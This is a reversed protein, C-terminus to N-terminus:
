SKAISIGAVPMASHSAAIAITSRSGPLLRIVRPASLSYSVLSNTVANHLPFDGPVHRLNRRISSRRDVAAGGTMRVVADALINSFPHFLDESPHLRHSDEPLRSVDSRFFDGPMETEGCRRVIQDSNSVKPQTRFLSSVGTSFSPCTRFSPFSSAFQTFVGLCSDGRSDSRRLNHLSHHDTM